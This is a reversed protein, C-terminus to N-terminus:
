IFHRHCLMLSHGNTEARRVPSSGPKRIETLVRGVFLQFTSDASISIATGASACAGELMM